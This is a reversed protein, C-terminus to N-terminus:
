GPQRQTRIHGIIDAVVAGMVLAGGALVRLTPYEGFGV